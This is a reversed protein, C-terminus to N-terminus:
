NIDKVTYLTIKQRSNSIRFFFFLNLVSLEIFGMYVSIFSIPSLAANIHDHMEDNIRSLLNQCKGESLSHTHM